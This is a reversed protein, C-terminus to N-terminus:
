VCLHICSKSYSSLEKTCNVANLVSIWLQHFHLSTDTAHETMAQVGVDCVKELAWSCWPPPSLFCTLAVTPSPCCHLLTKHSVVTYNCENFWLPQLQRCLVQMLSHSDGNWCPPPTRGVCVKLQPAILKKPLFATNLSTLQSSGMPHHEWGM